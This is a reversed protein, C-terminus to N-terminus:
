TPGAGSSRIGFTGSSAIIEDRREPDGAPDVEQGLAVQDVREALQDAPEDRHGLRREPGVRDALGALGRRHDGDVVGPGLDEGRM